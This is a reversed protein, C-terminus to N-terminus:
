HSCAIFIWSGKKQDVLFVDDIDIKIIKAVRQCRHLGFTSETIKKM